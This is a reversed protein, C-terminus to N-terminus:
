VATGKYLKVKFRLYDIWENLGEGTKTSLKIVDIGPKIKRASSVARGVDFDVYPLLDIKSIIMLDAARFMVPYKEPKDDGEVVSLLVVNIHTGLNYVAPCVLNGVNEVFVIDLDELPLHHIGEHVMFADLHCASGTTIQYAPVGKAKLRDADRTTELDGEIVGIKLENGLLEATKELLTTKGAGPSSMLNVALIGHEEFHRRNSEAQRDNSSLIKEVVELSKADHHHHHTNVSCGCEKCM